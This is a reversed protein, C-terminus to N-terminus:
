DAAGLLASFMLTISRHLMLGLSFDIEAPLAIALSVKQVIEWYLLSFVLIEWYLLSFFRAFKGKIDLIGLLFWNKLLWFLREHSIM